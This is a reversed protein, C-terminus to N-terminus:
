TGLLVQEVRQNQEIKITHHIKACRDLGDAALEM